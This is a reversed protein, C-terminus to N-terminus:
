RGEYLGYKERLRQIREMMPGYMVLLFLFTSGALVMNFLTAAGYVSLVVAWTPSASVMFITWIDVIFGYLFGSALGYVLLFGKAPAKWKGHNDLRYFLLGGLYGVFGMAFMQWPTWPGQGFFFNSMFAILAGTVFGEVPGLSVGALIAVALVPSFSPLMFFLGRGIVGIAVLVALVVVDRAKPRRGEFHAFFPVQILLILLLSILYHNKGRLVVLGGFVVAAMLLLIGGDLLLLQKRSLGPQPLAKQSLGGERAKPSSGVEKRAPLVGQPSHDEPREGRQEAKEPPLPGTEGPAGSSPGQLPRSFNMLTLDVIDQPTVTNDYVHRSMRSASTTYFSNQAFFQRPPLPQTIRGQFLLGCRTAYRCCFDMDHSVLVITIGKTQLQQLIGGLKKQFASDLGKTPEDLLLFSPERLLLQALAARQQEGGSLDYPHASLLEGLELLEVVEELRQAKRDPSLPQGEEDRLGKAIRRLDGEVTKEVFLVQPQQPLWGLTGDFAAKKAKKWLDKGELYVHGRYPKQIGALLALATTKGTGNGGLLALIEGKKVRLSGNCLVDKGEKSYRFAVGRLEMAFPGETDLAREGISKISPCTEEQQFLHTLYNKGESVTIPCPLAKGLGEQALAAQVQVPTPLAAMLPHQMTGLEQAIALPEGAALIRGKEMVVLRHALPFVEELCHTSLLITTGLERNVRGLAELFSTTALPDLQATPEDLLLVAPEMAMVAALNLLQKQGGSLDKIEAEMWDELGFFSAMEAVRLAMKDPDMGLNELGFALEHWVKDTVLQQEPNQFVYGIGAAEEGLSLASLAREGFSIVGEQTGAPALSPKLQRLLTTKGAGSLGSLVVFEGPSLTLNIDQLAPTERGPYTFTLHRIALAEM